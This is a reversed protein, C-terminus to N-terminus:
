LVDQPLIFKKAEEGWLSGEDRGMAVLPMM